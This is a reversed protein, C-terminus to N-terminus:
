SRKENLVPGKVWKDEEFYECTNTFDKENTIGGVVYVKTKHLISCHTRRSINM